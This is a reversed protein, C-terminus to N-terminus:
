DQQLFVVVVVDDVDDRCDDFGDVLNDWSLVQLVRGSRKTTTMMSDDSKMITTTRKAASTRNM